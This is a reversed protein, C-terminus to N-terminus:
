LNSSWTPIYNSSTKFSSSNKNKEIELTNNEKNEVYSHIKAEKM